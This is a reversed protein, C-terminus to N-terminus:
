HLIHGPLVEDIHVRLRAATLHRVDQEVEDEACELDGHDSLLDVCSVNASVCLVRSERGEVFENSGQSHDGCIRDFFSYDLERWHTWALKADPRRRRHTEYRHCGTVPLHPLLSQLRRM